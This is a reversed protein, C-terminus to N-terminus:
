KVYRWKIGGATEREGKCCQCIHAANVGTIRSASRISYYTQIVNGIISEVKRSRQAVMTDNRHGYKCNASHTVWELNDARNNKTNEDKHNVVAGDFWNPCFAKAVLRAVSAYETVCGMSLHVQMRGNKTTKQALMRGKFRRGDSLERDISRVNGQDSVEYYHEYGEIAKWQEM